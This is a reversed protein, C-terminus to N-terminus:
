PFGLQRWLKGAAKHQPDLNLAVELEALAEDTYGLQGLCVSLDYHLDADGSLLAAAKKLFQLTETLKGEEARRRGTHWFVSGWREDTQEALVIELLEGNWGGVGPLSKQSIIEIPYDRLEYDSDSEMWCINRDNSRSALSVLVEERDAEGPVWFLVYDDWLPALDAGQHWRDLILFECETEKIEMQTKRCASGREALAIVSTGANLLMAIGTISMILISSKEPMQNLIKVSRYGLPLLAPLLFRPGWHMGPHDPGILYALLLFGWGIIFFPDQIRRQGSLPFLSVIIWPFAFILGQSSVVMGFSTQNFYSWALAVVTLVPIGLASYIMRKLIITMLIIGFITTVFITHPLPSDFAFMLIRIFRDMGGAAGMTLGVNYPVQASILHGTVVYELLITFPIIALIGLTLFLLRLAKKEKRLLYAMWLLPYLLAIEPRLYIAFGLAIGPLFWGLRDNNDKKIAYFCPLLFLLALSHEWFTLGYFLLPAVMVIVAWIITISRSDESVFVKWRWIFTLLAAAALLYFGFQGFFTFFIGGLVPWLSSFIGRYGTSSPEAFPAPIPFFEDATRDESRVIICSQWGSQAYSQAMLRKVGDDVGWPFGGSVVYGICALLLTGLAILLLPRVIIRGRCTIESKSLAVLTNHSLLVM